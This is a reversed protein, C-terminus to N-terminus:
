VDFRYVKPNNEYHKTDFHVWTIPTGNKLDELRIKCPFIEENTEIWDRVEPASMGKVKFDFACGIVHGSTYLRERMTKNYTISSVNERFGREDYDGGWLWTNITFSKGIGERMLLLCHLTETNFVFWANNGHKKFVLESVLEEIRFYHTLKQIIEGRTSYVM